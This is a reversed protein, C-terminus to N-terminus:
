ATKATKFSTEFLTHQAFKRRSATRHPRLRHKHRHGAARSTGSNDPFLLQQSPIKRVNGATTSLQNKAHTLEYKLIPRRNQAESSGAPELRGALLATIIEVLSEAIGGPKEAPVIGASGPWCSVFDGGPGFKCLPQNQEYLNSM